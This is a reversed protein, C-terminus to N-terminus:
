SRRDLPCTRIRALNRASRRSSPRRLARRHRSRRVSRVRGVRVPDPVEGRLARRRPASRRKKRRHRPASQAAEGRSAVHPHRPLLSLFWDFLEDSVRGDNMAPGLGLQRLIARTAGRTPPISATLRRVGPFTAARMSIPVHVMPAGVVYGFEVMRDVREPHAAAGRLAFYGGLSTSVVHAAPVELADLVDVVLADAFTNLADLTRLNWGSAVSLGCGPRDLLVCRYGHVHPILPAWNAGSASGGHVFLVTPGAGVEQIRATTGLRSLRVHQEIPTLGLSEWLRLEVARYRAENMANSRRRRGHPPGGDVQRTSHRRRNM